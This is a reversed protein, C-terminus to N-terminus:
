VALSLSADPVIQLGPKVEAGSMEREWREHLNTTPRSNGITDILISAKALGRFNGRGVARVYVKARIIIALGIQSQNHARRFNRDLCM